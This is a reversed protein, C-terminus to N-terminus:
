LTNILKAVEEILYEGSKYVFKGDKNIAVIGYCYNDNKFLKNYFFDDNDPYHKKNDIVKNAAEKDSYVYINKKSKLDFDKYFNDWWYTHKEVNVNNDYHCNKSPQRFNIILIEEEQWNYIEKIFSLETENFQKKLGLSDQQCYSSISYLTIILALTKKM